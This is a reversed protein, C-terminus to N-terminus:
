DIDEQFREAEPTYDSREPATPGKKCGLLEAVPHIQSPDSSLQELIRMVQEMENQDFREELEKLFAIYTQDKVQEQSPKKNFSAKADQGTQKAQQETGSLENGTPLASLISTNRRVFGEVALSALEGLDVKGLHFKKSKFEDLQSELMDIYEEAEKLKQNTLTLEHKTQDAEWRQREITVRDEIQSGFRSEIEPGNLSSLDNGALIYIFQDHRPSSSSASYINVKIKQTDESVYEEYTDFEKPDNTRLVAKLGDVYIEYFRAQGEKEAQKELYRKLRELKDPDYKEKQIGM